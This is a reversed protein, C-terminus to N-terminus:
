IFQFDICRGNREWDGYRTPDPGKPGGTEGMTVNPKKPNEEDLSSRLTPAIKQIELIQKARCLRLNPSTEILKDTDTM